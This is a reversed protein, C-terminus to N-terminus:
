QQKATSLGELRQAERRVEEANPADPKAAL